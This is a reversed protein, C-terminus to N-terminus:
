KQNCMQQLFSTKLTLYFFWNIKLERETETYANEPLLSLIKLM